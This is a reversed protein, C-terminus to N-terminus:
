VDRWFSSLKMGILNEHHYGLIGAASPNLEEITMKEPDLVIVGADERHFTNYYRQEQRKLGMSLASVVAGVMIFIVSQVVAIILARIESEPVLGPMSTGTLLTRTTIDVNHLSIIDHHFWLVTIIHFLSIVVAFAVGNGPYQYSVLILSIFFLSLGAFVEGIATFYLAAGAAPLMAAYILLSWYVPNWDRAPFFDLVRDLKNGTM